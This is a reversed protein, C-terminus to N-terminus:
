KSATLDTHFDINEEPKKIRIVVEDNAVMELTDGAKLRFYKTWSKPLTIALSDGTAFLKREVMIPM